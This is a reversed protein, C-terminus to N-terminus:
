IQSIPQVADHLKDLYQIASKARFESDVPYLDNTDFPAHHWDPDFSRPDHIVNVWNRNILDQVHNIGATAYLTVPTDLALAQLILSSYVAIVHGCSAILDISDVTSNAVLIEAGCLQHDDYGSLQEDPHLKYVLEYVDGFCKKFDVAFKALQSSIPVQSIFVIRNRHKQPWDEQPLRVRQTLDGIDIVKKRALSFHEHSRWYRGLSLFVDPLVTRKVLGPYCYGPESPSISGHQIEVTPIGLQSCVEILPEKGPSYVFALWRPRLKRLQGQYVRLWVRRQFLLREIIPRCPKEIKLRSFLAEALSLVEDFAATSDRSHTVFKFFYWYLLFEFNDKGFRHPTDWLHSPSYTSKGVLARYPQIYKDITKGQPLTSHRRSDLFLPVGVEIDRFFTQFMFVLLGSLLRFLNIYGNYLDLRLRKTVKISPTAPKPELCDLRLESFLPTRCYQWLIQAEPSLRAQDESEVLIKM